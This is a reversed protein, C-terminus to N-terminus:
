NIDKEWIRIVHETLGTLDAVAKIPYKIINEMSLFVFSDLLQWSIQDFLYFLEFKDQCINSMQRNKVFM